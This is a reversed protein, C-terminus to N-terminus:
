EAHRHFELDVRIPLGFVLSDLYHAGVRGVRHLGVSPRPANNDIGVVAHQFVRGVHLHARGNQATLLQHLGAVQGFRQLLELRCELVVAVTGQCVVADRLHEEQLM